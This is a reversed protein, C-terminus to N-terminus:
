GIVTSIASLPNAFEGTVSRSQPQSHLLAMIEPM